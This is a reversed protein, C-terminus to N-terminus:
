RYAAVARGCPGCGDDAHAHGRDGQVTRREAALRAFVEERQRDDRPETAPAPDGGRDPRDAAHRSGSSGAAGSAEIRQQAEEVRARAEMASAAAAVARDQGSPSAPALAAARIQRAKSITDSPSSGPSVDIGVEGGIAYRRGDPGTQYSFSPRGGLGGAAAAHAAEHVRVEADSSQLKRVIEQEEPTLQSGPPRGAGSRPVAEASEDKGASDDRAAAEPSLTVVVGESPDGEAREAGPRPLRLGRDYARAGQVPSHEVRMVLSCSDAPASAPYLRTAGGGPAGM